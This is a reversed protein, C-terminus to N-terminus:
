VSRAVLLDVTRWYKESDGSHFDQQDVVTARRIQVSGSTDIWHDFASVVADAVADADDPTDAFANIQVREVVHVSGCVTRVRRSSILQYTVAPLGVQLPAPPRYIRNGILATLGAFANMRNYLTEHVGSM